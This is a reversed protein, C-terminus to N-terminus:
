GIFLKQIKQDFSEPPFVGLQEKFILSVTVGKFDSLFRDYYGGGFGIRYGEETFLLGPVILVDLSAKAIPKEPEPELVGFTSRNFKTKETVQFFHMQHNKAIPAAMIKGAHLGASFIKDLPIEIESPLYFGIVQAEKFYTSALFDKQIKEARSLKKRDGALAKLKELMELRLEKKM